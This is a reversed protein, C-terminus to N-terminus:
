KYVTIAVDPCVVACNQCATCETEEVIVAPLIGRLNLRKGMRIHKKPCADLCLECGKCRNEEIIIKPM